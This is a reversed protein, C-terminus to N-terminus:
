AGPRRGGRALIRSVNSQNISYREALERQSWSGNLYLRRMESIQEDTLPIHAHMDEPLPPLPLRLWRRVLAWFNM